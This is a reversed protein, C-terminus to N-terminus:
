VNLSLMWKESHEAAFPKGPNLVRSSGRQAFTSWKQVRADEIGLREDLIYGARVKIIPKEVANVCTIIEEIYTRAHESWADLVHAIGGCHDPLELTDLFAQGITAIRSFSGRIQVHDGFYKTTHFVIARGRVRVPHSIAKPHEIEDGYDPLAEGYDEAMMANLRQRRIQPTPQTLFLAEPRRNTLGYRQMASMHSIYCDADVSCIIDEAPADPKSMVRWLASYDSDQRIIGEKRLLRRTRRFVDRSPIEGRLHSVEGREYVKWLERYLDYSTLLPKPQKDLVSALAEGLRTMRKRHQFPALNSM